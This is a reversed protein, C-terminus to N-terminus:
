LCAWAITDTVTNPGTLALSSSSPVCKIASASTEDTCTPRCQTTICANSVTATSPSGSTLAVTGACVLGDPALALMGSTDTTPPSTASRTLANDEISVQPSLTTRNALSRPICGDTGANAAGTLLKFSGSNCDDGYLCYEAEGKDPVYFHVINDQGGLAHASACSFGAGTGFPITEGNRDKMSIKYKCTAAGSQIVTCASGVAVTNTFQQLTAGSDILLPQTKEDTAMAWTNPATGNSSLVGGSGTVDACNNQRGSLNNQDNFCIAAHNGIAATSATFNSWNLNTTGRVNLLFSYTNGSTSSSGIAFLPIASTFPTASQTYNFGDVGIAYSGAVAGGTPTNDCDIIKGDAATKNADLQFTTDRLMSSGQFPSTLGNMDCTALRGTLEARTGTATLSGTPLIDYATAGAQEIVTNEQSVAPAGIREAGKEYNLGSGHYQINSFSQGRFSTPIDLGWDTWGNCRLNWFNNPGNDAGNTTPTFQWCNQVQAVSDDEPFPGNNGCWMNFMNSNKTTPGAVPNNFEVCASAPAFQNSILRIGNIRFGFSSNVKIMPTSGPGDYIIVDGANNTASMSTGYGCGEFEIGHGNSQPPSGVSITGTFIISKCPIVIIGPGNQYTAAAITQNMAVTSDTGAVYQAASSTVDPAVGLIVTSPNVYTLTTVYSLATIGLNVWTCNTAPLGDNTTTGPTQNWSPASGGSTCTTSTEIFIYNGANGATPQVENDRVYANTSAWNAALKADQIKIRNMTPVFLSNTTDSFTTSNATMSGTNFSAGTTVAGFTIANPTTRGNWGVGILGVIQGNIIELIPPWYKNYFMPAGAILAIVIVLLILPLRKM